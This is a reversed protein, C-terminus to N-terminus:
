KPIKYNDKFGYVELVGAKWGMIKRFLKVDCVRICCTGNYLKNKRHGLSTNKIILKHFQKLPIGTLKSWYKKINSKKHLTHIHVQIRFKEEPVLCIDRFWKMMLQIMNPDSNSFNVIEGGRKTGEAWYLMSGSLFLKNNILKKAEDKAESFIIKTLEIRKQQNKKSGLYRSKSRGTLEKQQQKTLPIDRLWLSLSSKSVSVHKLIESYSKGKRRLKRALYKQTVKKRM